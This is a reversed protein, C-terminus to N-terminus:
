AECELLRPVRARGTAAVELMMQAVARDVPDDSM